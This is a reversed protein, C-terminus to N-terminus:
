QSDDSNINSSDKVSSRTTRSSKMRSSMVTFERPKLETASELLACNKESDVSLLNICQNDTLDFSHDLIVVGNEYCAAVSSPKLPPTGKKRYLKISDTDLAVIPSKEKGEGTLSVASTAGSSSLSLASAPPSITGLNLSPLNNVKLLENLTSHFSGVDENNKATAICLCMFSRVLSDSLGHELGRM